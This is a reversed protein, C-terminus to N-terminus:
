EPCKFNLGLIVKNWNESLFACMSSSDPIIFSTWTLSHDVSHSNM